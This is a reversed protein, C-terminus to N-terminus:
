KSRDEDYKQHTSPLSDFEGKTKVLVFPVNKILGTRKGKGKGKGREMM